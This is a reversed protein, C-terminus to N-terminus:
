LSKKATSFRNKTPKSMTQKAWRRKKVDTLRFQYFFENKAIFALNIAWNLEYTLSPEM